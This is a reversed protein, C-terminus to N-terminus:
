KAFHSELEELNSNLTESLDRHVYRSKFDEQSGLFGPFVLDSLSWADMLSNEVPTGSMAIAVDIDLRRAAVSRGSNPNKLVSAEDFVALDFSLEELMAIDSAMTPYSTIIVSHESLPSSIGRRSSGYHLYPQISPAFFFFERMWNDLLPNPVVVLIKAAPNKELTDCCLAIIQATKGLGMDDALITGVGNGVCFSLWDVGKKQYPYLERKFLNEHHATSNKKVRLTELFGSPIQDCLGEQYLTRLLKILASLHLEGLASGIYERVGETVFHIRNTNAIFYGHFKLSHCQQENLLKGKFSLSFHPKPDISFQFHLEAPRKSAILTLHEGDLVVGIKGQRYLHNSAIPQNDYEIVGNNVLYEM